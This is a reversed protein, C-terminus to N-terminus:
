AAPAQRQRPQRTRLWALLEVAPIPHSLHYGQATDCGLDSLEDLVDGDEVGEAVVTLGLNRALDITSRVIVADSHISQMSTVFARDIKLEHVPLDKLRALSSYGTGFDDISIRIGLANLEHLIRQARAPDTMLASETIELVLRSPELGHAALLASIQRPFGADLLSRASLNIAMTLDYGRARWSRQQSLATELVFTTLPHILATGEALAIFEAPSVAGLQPHKWRLLAEVGHVEGSALEVKPQYHLTLERQDIARRLDALLALRRPSNVDLEPAYLAAGTHSQKAVYMAVDAHQLLTDIDLEQDATVAVGVSADVELALDDLVFPQRLAQLMKEAVGMATEPEVHPLLVAFEDGGLRVVSDEERAVAALRAAVGRLLADGQHHGLTDNIDKFRDLDLLLLGVRGRTRRAAAIAREGRDRLLVRNPLGTLADHLAQHRTLAGQRELKRGASVLVLCCLALL